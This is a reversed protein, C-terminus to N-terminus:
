MPTSANKSLDTLRLCELTQINAFINGLFTAAQLFEKHPKLYEEQAPKSQTAWLLHRCWDLAIETDNPIIFQPVM